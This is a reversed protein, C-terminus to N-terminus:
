QGEWQIAKLFSEKDQLIKRSVPKMEVEGIEQCDKGNNYKTHTIKDQTVFAPLTGLWVNKDKGEVAIVKSHENRMVNIKFRNSQASDVMGMSSWNRYVGVARLDASPRSLTGTICTFETKPEDFNWWGSRDIQDFILTSLAPCESGSPAQCDPNPQREEAKGKLEWEGSGERRYVNFSGYATPEMELRLRASSNLIAETTNWLFRLRVMGASELIAPAGNVTINTPIGAFAFDRPKRLEVVEARVDGGAPVKFSGKPITIRTGSKLVLETTQGPLITFSETDLVQLETDNRLVDITRMPLDEPNLNWRREQEQIIRRRDEPTLETDDPSRASLALAVALVCCLVASTRFIRM